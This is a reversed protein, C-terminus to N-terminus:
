EALVEEYVSLTGDVMRELSYMKRVRERAEGGLGARMSDSEVLQEMREALESVSSSSVVFGTQGDLVIEPLAGVKTAVVPRAAAMAEIATLGFGESLQPMTPFVLFDCANLFARMDAVFGLFRVVGDPLNHRALGELRARLPGEGAVLLRLDPVRGRAEVLADFLFEHGKGPIMRSAVGAVVDRPGIGFDSRAMGWQERPLLWDSADIGYPVVRVSSDPVLDLEHMFRQVHESIAIVRRASRRALRVAGRYPEKGFFSQTGHVSCVGAHGRLRAALQGYIDAHILHTHVIDPRYDGMAALLVGPLLPNVHPGASVSVTEIGGKELAEAFRSSRHRGLICMRVDVGRAAIAPLLGILHKESGGIGRVKQIHLVRVDRENLLSSEAESASHVICLEVRKDERAPERLTMLCWPLSSGEESVSSALREPPQGAPGL